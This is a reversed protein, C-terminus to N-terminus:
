SNVFGLIPQGNTKLFKGLIRSLHFVTLRSTLLAECKLAEHLQSWVKLSLSLPCTSVNPMLVLALGLHPLGPREFARRSASPSSLCATARTAALWRCANCCPLPPASLPKFSLM